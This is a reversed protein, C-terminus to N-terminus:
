KVKVIMVSINDDSGFAYATDRLRRAALHPSALSATVIQAATESPVEDWVGDCALILFKSEDKAMDFVHIYPDAIVWPHMYFDGLSRSVALLGNIRGYGDGTVYGGPLARIRDQELRPKHDVTLAVGKSSVVRADGVNAIYAISKIILAVIATAGCTKTLTDRSKSGVREKFKANIENFLDKVIEKPDVGASLKSTVIEPAVEAAFDAVLRGAHGDFVCFLDTDANLSGRICFRDEMEGRRGVMEAWGVDFRTGSHYVHLKAVSSPQKQGSKLPNGELIIEARLAELGLPVYEMKNHGFDLEHLGSLEDWIDCCDWPLDYEPETTTARESSNVIENHSVNFVQLSELMRITAPITKLKNFSLDIQEVTSIQCISEPLEGISCGSAYLVRLSPCLSDLDDPLSAIKPNGSIVLEDLSELGNLDIESLDNFGVNLVNLYMLDSLSPLEKLLNGFLNLTQLSNLSLFESPLESIKNGALDLINLYGMDSIEPAIVAIKNNKLDLQTLNGLGIPIADLENHGLLLGEL